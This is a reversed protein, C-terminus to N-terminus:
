PKESGRFHLSCVHSNPFPEWNDKKINKMWEHRLEPDTPFKHFSIKTEELSPPNKLIPNLHFSKHCSKKTGEETSLRKQFKWLYIAM